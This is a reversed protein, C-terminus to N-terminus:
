FNFALVHLKHMRLLKLSLSICMCCMNFFFDTHNFIMILDKNYKLCTFPIESPLSLLLFLFGQKNSHLNLTPITDLLMCKCIM